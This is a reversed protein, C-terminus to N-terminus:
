RAVKVIGRIRRQKKESIKKERKEEMFPGGRKPPKALRKGGVTPHGVRQCGLRLRKFRGPEKGTSEGINSV